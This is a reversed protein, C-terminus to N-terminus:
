GARKYCFFFSELIHIEDQGRGGSAVTKGLRQNTAKQRPIVEPTSMETNQVQRTLSGKNVQSIKRGFGIETHHGYGDDCSM